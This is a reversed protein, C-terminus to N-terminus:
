VEQQACTSTSAAIMCFRSAATRSRGLGCRKAGVAPAHPAAPRQVKDAPPRAPPNGNAPACKRLRPLLSQLQQWARAISHALGHKPLHRNQKIHTGAVRMWFGEFPEACAGPRGGARGEPVMAHGSQSPAAHSYENKGFGLALGLGAQM